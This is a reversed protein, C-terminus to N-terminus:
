RSVHIWGWQEHRAAVAPATSTPSGGCDGTCVCLLGLPASAARTHASPLLWGLVSEGHVTGGCRVVRSVRARVCRRGLQVRGTLQQLTLGERVITRTCTVRTTTTKHPLPTPAGKQYTEHRHTSEAVARRATPRLPDHCTPQPTRHERPDLPSFGWGWQSQQRQRLHPPRQDPHTTPGRYM